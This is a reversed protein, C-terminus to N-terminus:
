SLKSRPVIVRVVTGKGPASDIDLRGDIGEAREMAGLIGLHEQRALENWRNPLIFGYGDDRIELMTQAPDVELRIMVTCPGAHLVVNHLAEQYIRFLALRVREALMQGDPMLSVEVAIEPQAEQFRDIHSHIAAELGFPTLTPPRLEWCMARLTESTRQLTVRVAELQTLSIPDGLNDALAKLHFRAGYLEQIPNDHMERAIQLREEERSDILRRRTEDLETEIQKKSTIDEVIKISFSSESEADRVLSVTVRAWLVRGDRRIYRCETQYHNYIGDVLKDYLDANKALDDEHVLATFVAGEIDKQSYGLMKSLAPNIELIRKGTDILAIGIAANEFTPRLRADHEQLAKEMEYLSSFLASHIQEQETLMMIRTQRTFGIALESLLTVLRPHLVAVQDPLLPRRFVVM